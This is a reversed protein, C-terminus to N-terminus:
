EKFLKLLEVYPIKLAIDGTKLKILIPKANDNNINNNDDDNNLGLISYKIAIKDNVIQIFENRRPEYYYHPSPIIKTVKNNDTADIIKGLDNYKSMLLQKKAGM